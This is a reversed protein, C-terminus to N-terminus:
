KEDEKLEEVEFADNIVPKIRLIEFKYLERENEISADLGGSIFFESCEKAESESDANIEVVYSRTLLVKFKKM